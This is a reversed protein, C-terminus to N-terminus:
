NGYSKDKNKLQANLYSQSILRIEAKPLILPITLKNYFVEQANGLQQVVLLYEQKAKNFLGTEHYLGALYYHAPWCDSHIYLAKKFWSISEDLQENWKKIMGLLLFVDISFPSSNLVKLADKQASEFDKQSFYIFARLLLYQDKEKETSISQVDSSLNDSLVNDLILLSKDYDKEKILTKLQDLALGISQTPEKILLKNKIVSVSNNSTNKINIHNEISTKIRKDPALEQAKDESKSQLSRHNQFYFVEGEHKLALPGLNNSMSETLGVILYANPNLLNAFRKHIALLTQQDFYISVNRFFLVDIKTTDPDIIDSVINMYRWSVMEQIETDLVYHSHLPIKGSNNFHSQETFYRQKLAASLSRFAMASYSATQAIELAKYDVDTGIITFLKAADSGFKQHLAMAISYPETGISCGVCLIRIPENRNHQAQLKPILSDTLFELHIPERYFYTENITLLCVLEQLEQKNVNQKGLTQTIPMQQEKILQQYYLEYSVIGKTKLRTNLAKVLVVENNGKFDLGFETKCLQNFLELEKISPTNDSNM